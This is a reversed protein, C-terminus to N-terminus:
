EALAGKVEDFYGLSDMREYILRGVLEYGTANLHLLDDVMLSPPVKGESIAELDDETPEIGADSLADTTLYERLNIFREGYEESLASELEAFYDLLSGNVQASNVAYLGIVIYREGNRENRALIAKQHEILETPNRFDGNTGIFVVNIYDKWMGSSYTVIETGRPIVTEEGVEERSFFYETRAPVSDRTSTLTGKIGGITVPNVGGDGQILPLVRKRLDSYIKIKVPTKDAPVTFEQVRFPVTGSRAVITPSTEGGVGMNVVPIDDVRYKEPVSVNYEDTINEKILSALTDPYTVGDGGAGVTLSDGWCVIGPLYEEIVASIEESKKQLSVSEAGNNKMMHRRYSSFPNLVSFLALACSLFVTIRM